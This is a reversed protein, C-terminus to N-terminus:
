RYVQNHTGIDLFLITTDNKKRYIVRIDGTISFARRGSQDGKLAHDNLLPNNPNDLFEILRGDFKKRLSPSNAIRKTFHKHFKSAFLPSVAM